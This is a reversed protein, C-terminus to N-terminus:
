NSVLIISIDDYSKNQIAKKYLKDIKEELGVNCCLINKIEIDKVFDTLGDTCLLFTFEKPLTIINSNIKPESSFGLAQNILNKRPDNIIDEKSILGQKFEQWVPSHDDTIQKLEKSSFLYIRSDGCNYSYAKDNKLLLTVITSSMNPKNLEKAKKQILKNIESIEKKLWADVDQIKLYKYYDDHIKTCCLKSAIEGGPYGGVGDCVCFLYGKAQTNDEELPLSRYDDNKSHSAGQKTFEAYHM